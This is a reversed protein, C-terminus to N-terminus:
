TKKVKQKELQKCKRKEAREMKQLEKKEKQQKKEEMMNKVPTSSIVFSPPKARPARKSIKRDAVPLPPLIATIINTSSGPIQENNELFSVERMTKNPINHNDVSTNKEELPRDTVVSSEFDLDSFVLPNYPEIGTSRFGHVANGVTAAKNYAQGFLKGIDHDVIARGPHSVLFNDCVQSYFTKLPGFIAVDLPQLRHTTHPPFGLMIIHNERCFNIADLSVHHM